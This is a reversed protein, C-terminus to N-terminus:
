RRGGRSYSQKRARQMTGRRERSLVYKNKCSCMGNFLHAPSLPTVEDETGERLQPEADARECSGRTSINLQARCFEFREELVCLSALGAKVTYRVNLLAPECRTSLRNWAACPNRKGLRPWHRGLCHMAASPSNRSAERTSSSSCHDDLQSLLRHNEIFQPTSDTSAFEGDSVEEDSMVM